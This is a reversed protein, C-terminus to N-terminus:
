VGEQHLPLRAHICTGRGPATEIVCTGGLEATRERMSALGVGARTASPLGVGDDRIEVDLAPGLTLCVACSRAQAHRIVNTL